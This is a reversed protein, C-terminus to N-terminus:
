ATTELSLAREGQQQIRSTWASGSARQLGRRASPCGERRRRDEEATTVSRKLSRGLSPEAGCGTGEHGRTEKRTAVPTSPRRHLLGTSECPPQRHEEPLEARANSKWGWNRGPQEEESNLHSEPGRRCKQLVTRADMDCPHHSSCM